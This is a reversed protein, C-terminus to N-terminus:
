GDYGTTASAICIIMAWFYLKRLGADKKWDVRELEPAEAQAIAVEEKKKQVAKPAQVMTFPNPTQRACIFTTRVRDRLSPPCRKALSSFWLPRDEFPTSTPSSSCKYM